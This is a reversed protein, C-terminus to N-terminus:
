TCIQGFISYKGEHDVNGQEQFEFAKRRNCSVSCTDGNPIQSLQKDVIQNIVTTVVLGKNKYHNFSFTGVESREEVSIYKVARSFAQSFNFLMIQRMQIANEDIPMLFSEPKLSTKEFPFM